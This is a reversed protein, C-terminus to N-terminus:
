PEKVETQKGADTEKLCSSKQTGSNVDGKRWLVSLSFRFGEHRM